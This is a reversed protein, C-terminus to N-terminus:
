GQVDEAGREHPDGHEVDGQGHALRDLGTGGGSCHLRGRGTRCLRHTGGVAGSEAGVSIEDGSTSSSSPVSRGQITRTHFSGMLVM